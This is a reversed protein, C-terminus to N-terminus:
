GLSQDHRRSDAGPHRRPKPASLGLCPRLVRRAQRAPGHRGYAASQTYGASPGCDAHSCRGALGEGDALRDHLIAGPHATLDGMNKVFSGAATSQYYPDMKIRGGAQVLSQVLKRMEPSATEPHLYADRLAAGRMVTSFITTPSLGKLMTTAGRLPEGRSLQQLGLAMKSMMTDFAIFTAHFGSFSLQASNLANSAGRVADYISSRGALGSSTYNNFVRAVQDPAWWNGHEMKGGAEPVRPQFAPDQLQVWGAQRAAGEDGAPVWHALGSNKIDEALKVGHYFRQMEYLKLLQMEIPNTTVPILGAEMGERQTDFTRQKLFAGSGKLPSKGRAQAGAIDRGEAATKAADEADLGDRWEKYNAWIHGM